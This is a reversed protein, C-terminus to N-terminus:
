ITGALFALPNLITVIRVDFLLTIPVAGPRAPWIRTPVGPLKRRASPAVEAGWGRRGAAQRSVEATLPSGPKSTVRGSDTGSVRESPFHVRM